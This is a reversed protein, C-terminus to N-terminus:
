RRRDDQECQGCVVGSPEPVEAEPGGLLVVKGNGALEEGMRAIEARSLLRDRYHQPMPADSTLEWFVVEAGPPVGLRHAKAVASRASDAETLMAGLFGRGGPPEAEAFSLYFKM